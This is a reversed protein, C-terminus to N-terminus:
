DSIFNRSKECIKGPWFENEGLLKVAGQQRRSKNFVQGGAYNPESMLRVLDKFRIAKLFPFAAHLLLIYAM